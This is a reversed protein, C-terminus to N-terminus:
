GLLFRWVWDFPHPTKVNDQITISLVLRKIVLASECSVM